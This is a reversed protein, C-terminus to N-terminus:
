NKLSEHQGNDRSEEKLLQAKKMLKIQLMIKDGYAKEEDTSPM